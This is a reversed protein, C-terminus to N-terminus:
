IPITLKMVHNYAESNNNTLDDSGNKVTEFKNWLEHKFRPRGRIGTRRNVKGLWTLEWYELYKEMAATYDSNTTDDEEEESNLEPLLPLVYKDFVEFMNGIPVLSICWLMRIFQQVDPNSDNFNTLGFRGQTKRMARKWYTDCCEIEAGEYVTKVAKIATPEFDLHVTLPNEVGAEKLRKLVLEYSSYSKEPRLFHPVPVTVENHM